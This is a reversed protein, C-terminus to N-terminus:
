RARLVKEPASRMPRITGNRSSLGTARRNEIAAKLYAGRGFRPTVATAWLMRTAALSIPGLLQSACVPLMARKQPQRCLAGEAVLFCSSRHAGM